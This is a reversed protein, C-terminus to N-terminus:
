QKIFRQITSGNETTIEIFYTGNPFNSVNIKTTPTIEESRIPRGLADMFRIVTNDTLGKIEIFHVAPNPYISIPSEVNNLYIIVTKSYEFSKDTDVIKLRYYNIGKAPKTDTFTYNKTVISNPNEVDLTGITEFDHGNTSREIVYYDLNLETATTWDL